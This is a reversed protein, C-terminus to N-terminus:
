NRGFSNNIELNPIRHRVTALFPRLSSSWFILFNWFLLGITCEAPIYQSHNPLENVIAFNCKRENKGWSLFWWLQAPALLFRAVCDPCSIRLEYKVCLCLRLGCVAFFIVRARARLIWREVSRSDARMATRYDLADGFNIAKSRRERRRM